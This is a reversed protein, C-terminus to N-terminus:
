GSTPVGGAAGAPATEALIEQLWATVLEPREDVIFHGCDPVETIRVDDAHHELGDLMSRRIVPDDLGMLVRVPMTLRQEEYPGRSLALAERLMFARYVKAGAVARGPERMAARYERADAAPVGARTLVSWLPGRQIAPGLVPASVLPQYLFRPLSRWTRAPSLWVHAMNLMAVLRFRDPQRLAALQSVWSGWDHGVIACGYVELADLLALVDSAMQEKDYGGNTIETWGFGRLDPAIVRRGEAALVPIVAHWLWWHEPWGHLLVVVPGDAPGATAIHMRLGAADVFHHEVGDCPPFPRM